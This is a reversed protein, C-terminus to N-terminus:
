TAPPSGQPPLPGTSRAPWPRRGPWTTTSPWTSPTPRRRGVRLHIRDGPAIGLRDAAEASALVVAASLDVDMMAVLRKTYPFAVMRNDPGPGVLEVPSWAKPFWAYPNAAAVETMPAFLEGLAARHEDM